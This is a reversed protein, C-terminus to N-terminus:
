VSFRIASRWNVWSHEPSRGQQEVFHTLADYAVKLPVLCDARVTLPGGCCMGEVYQASDNLSDALAYQNGDPDYYTVIWGIPRPSSELFFTAATTYPPEMVCRIVRRGDVVDPRWNSVKEISFEEREYLWSEVDALAKRVDDSTPGRPGESSGFRIILEEV